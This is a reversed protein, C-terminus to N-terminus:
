TEIAVEERRNVFSTVEEQSSGDLWLFKAACPECYGHSVNDDPGEQLVKGCEKVCCVVKLGTNNDM